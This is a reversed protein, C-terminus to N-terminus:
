PQPLRGNSRHHSACPLGTCTLPVKVKKFCVCHSVVVGKFEPILGQANSLHFMKTPWNPTLLTNPDNLLTLTEDGTNTVKAVIKFDDANHIFEDGAFSVSISSSALVFPSGTLLALVTSALMM